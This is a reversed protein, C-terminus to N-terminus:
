KTSRTLNKYICNESKKCNKITKHETHNNGLSGNYIQSRNNWQIKNQCIAFMIKNDLLLILKLSKHKDLVYNLLLQAIVTLNFLCLTWLHAFLMILFFCKILTHLVSRKRFTGLSKAYVRLFHKIQRVHQHYLYVIM